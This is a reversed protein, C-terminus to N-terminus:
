SVMAFFVLMAHVNTLDCDEKSQEVIYVLLLGITVYDLVNFFDINSKIARYVQICM